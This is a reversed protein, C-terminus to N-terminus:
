LRVTEVMNVSASFELHQIYLGEHLTYITYHLRRAMQDEAASRLCRSYPFLHSYLADQSGGLGVAGSDPHFGSWTACIELFRIYTCLNTM